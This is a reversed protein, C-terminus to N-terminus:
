VHPWRSGVGGEGQRAGSDRATAYRIEKETLNENTKSNVWFVTDSRTCLKTIRYKQAKWISWWWIQKSKLNTETKLRQIPFLVNTGPSWWPQLKFSNHTKKSFRSLCFRYIERWKIKFHDRSSSSSSDSWDHGVRHSGMSLLGGPEGMGPIRWALVSSRTAM